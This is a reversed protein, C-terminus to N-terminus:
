GDDRVAGTRRHGGPGRARTRQGSAAAQVRDCEAHFEAVPPYSGDREFLYAAPRSPPFRSVAEALLALQGPGVPHLHTDHYRGDRMVGGAVHLYAVREWPLRDFTAAPDLGHNITDGHFNAVDVLLLADTRDVLEALFDAPSLEDDPWRALAAPNELALPVPLQECAIRVNAVLVDLADRSYPIPLLHGAETGGARVFAVHESVLPSGLAQAVDALRRLRAPDPREAGGLSLGIGHAVVPVGLDTPAPRAVARLPLHEAIVEVFGLDTRDALVAALEPRWGVGFGSVATMAHDHCGRARAAAGQGRNGAPRRRTTTASLGVPGVISPGVGCSDGGLAAVGIEM